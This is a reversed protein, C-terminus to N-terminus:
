EYVELHEDWSLTEENWNFRWQWHEPSNVDYPNIPEPIPPEWVYGASLTWSPYPSPADKWYFANKEEDFYIGPIAVNARFPTGGLIHVNNSTNISFQKWNGGFLEACFDSGKQEIEIGNKDLLIENNIVITRIVINNEDLEAFHAM